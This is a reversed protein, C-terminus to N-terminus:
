HASDGDAMRAEQLTGVLHSFSESHLHDVGESSYSYYDYGTEDSGVIMASHGRPTGNINVADSDVIHIIDTGFRDICSIVWNNCYAFNNWGDPYGLPDSTQWKGLEPRYNRFLFAYGL